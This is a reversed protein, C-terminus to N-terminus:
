QATSLEPLALYRSLYGDLLAIVGGLFLGSGQPVRVEVNYVSIGQFGFTTAPSHSYSM